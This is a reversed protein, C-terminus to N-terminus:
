GARREMAHAAAQAVVGLIGSDDVLADDQYAVRVEYKFVTICL